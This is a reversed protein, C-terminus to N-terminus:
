CKNVFNGPVLDHFASPRQFAKAIQRVFLSLRELLRLPGGLSPSRGVISTLRM